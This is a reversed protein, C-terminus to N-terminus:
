NNIKLTKSATIEKLFKNIYSVIGKCSEVRKYANIVTLLENVLDEVDKDIKM